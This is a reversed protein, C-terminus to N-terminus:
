IAYFFSRESSGKERGYTECEGEIVTSWSTIKYEL